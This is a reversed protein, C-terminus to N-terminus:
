IEQKKPDKLTVKKIKQVSSGEDGSVSNNKVQKGGKKNENLEIEITALREDALKM